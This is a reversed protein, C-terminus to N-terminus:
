RSSKYCCIPSFLLSITTVKFPRMTTASQSLRSCRDTMTSLANNDRSDRGRVWGSRASLYDALYINAVTFVTWSTRCASTVCSMMITLTKNTWASGSPTISLLRRPRLSLSSSLATAALSRVAFGLRWPHLARRVTWCVVQHCTARSKRNSTTRILMIDSLRSSFICVYHLTYMVPWMYPRYYKNPLGVIFQYKQSEPFLESMAM